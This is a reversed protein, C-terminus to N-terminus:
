DMSVSGGVWEFDALVPLHESGVDPGVWCRRCRWGPGALIHDIRIATRKNRYTYGWGSGAHTWADAYPSWFEGYVASEDTMNFDGAILLPGDLQRAWSSGLRSQERRQQTNKELEEYGHQWDHRVAGLGSRPTQLHLQIFHLKMKKTELVYRCFHDHDKPPAALVETELIRFRSALCFEAKRQLEWVGPEFVAKEYRGSWDQLAVIDPDTESLLKALADANLHHRDTNLTLVRVTALSESGALLNRWPLCLGMLPGGVLLLCGLQVWLLRRRWFLAAPALVVLPLAYVWRPGYMLVTAPWWVDSFWTLLLWVTLVCTLWGTLRACRGLVLPPPPSVAFPSNM